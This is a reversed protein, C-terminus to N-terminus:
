KHYNSMVILVLFCQQRVAIFGGTPQTGKQTSCAHQRWAQMSKRQTSKHSKIAWLHSHHIHYVPLKDLMYGAEQEIVALILEPVRSLPHISNLSLSFRSITSLIFMVKLLTLRWMFKSRHVAAKQKDRWMGRRGSWERQWVKTKRSRWKRVGREVKRNSSDRWRWEDM